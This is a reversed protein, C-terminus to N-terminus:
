ARNMASSPMSATRTPVRPESDLLEELSNFIATPEVIAIDNIKKNNAAINPGAIVVPSLALM